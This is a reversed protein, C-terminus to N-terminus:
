EERDSIRCGNEDCVEGDQGLPIFPSEEQWVKELANLFVESPQAGSVAYKRNFVYYPVGRVDMMMAEQEDARVDKEFEDSELMRAVDTPDLGVEAALEILTKHEGIHKSETFYARFLRESMELSKGHKAAYVMLRHADFTNTLVITDFQFDLGVAEAQKKVNNCSEIAQERSMGYKRALKDYNDYDVNRQM